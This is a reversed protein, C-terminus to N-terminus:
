EESEKKQKVGAGAAAILTGPMGEQSRILQNLQVKITRDEIIDAFDYLAKLVHVYTNCLMEGQPTLSVGPGRALNAVRAKIKYIDNSNDQQKEWSEIEDLTMDKLKKTEEKQKKNNRKEKFLKAMDEESMEGEGQSIISDVEDLLNLFPGDKEKPQQQRYIDENFRRSEHYIKLSQLDKLLSKSESYWDGDTDCDNMADELLEGMKQILLTQTKEHEIIHSATEAYTTPDLPYKMKQITGM